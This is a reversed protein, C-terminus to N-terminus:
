EYDNMRKESAEQLQGELERAKELAQQQSETYSEFAGPEPESEGGSDCASLVLLAVVIALYKM